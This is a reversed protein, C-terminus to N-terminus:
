CFIDLECNSLNFEAVFFAVPTVLIIMLRSQYCYFYDEMYTIISQYFPKLDECPKQLCNM